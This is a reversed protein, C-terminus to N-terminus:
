GQGKYVSAINESCIMLFSYHDTLECAVPHAASAM